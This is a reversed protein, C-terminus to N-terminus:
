SVLAQVTYVLSMGRDTVFAFRFLVYVPAVRSLFMIVVGKM